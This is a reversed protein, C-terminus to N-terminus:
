HNSQNNILVIIYVALALMEMIGLVMGVAARGSGGLAGGSARIRRRSTYGLIVAVPSLVGCCFVSALGVWLAASASSDVPVRRPFPTPFAPATAPPRPHSIPPPSPYAAPTSIRSVPPSPRSTPLPVEYPATAHGAPSRAEGPREWMIERVRDYVHGATPRLEADPRLMEWLLVELRPDLADSEISLRGGARVTEAAYAHDSSANPLHGTLYQCYVLGLAFVDSKRTVTTPASQCQIYDLLEPSYYAMDGMVLEPAPPQGEFYSSDFDILFAHYDDSVSPSILVNDPKLDGHVISAAHVARLAAAVTTLILLKSDFSRQAMDQVTLRRDHDIWPAVTYWFTNHRFQAVPVVLRGGTSAVHRIAHLKAEQYREFEEFERRRRAKGEATGPASDLPYKPRLFRKIFYREGGCEAVACTCNGGTSVDFDQLLRYAGIWKSNQQSNM